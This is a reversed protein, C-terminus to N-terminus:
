RSAVAKQVPALRQRYIYVSELVRQVYNRTEAVPIMEIWDILSIQRARPDGNTQLWEGVRRPGANYAAVALAYSNDYKDLLGKMYLSGLKINRAPDGTLSGEGGYSVDNKRAVEAATAPMLQMLGRAGSPSVAQDDFSSEQRIVAHVLSWEIEVPRMWSLMTPYSQDMLLINKALGKRAIKVANYRHGLEEAFEASLRYEEPTKATDALAMLLESTEDRMGAANLIKAAQAMDRAYFAQQGSFTRPPPTQLPPRDAPDLAGVSLQGYFTTQWRAASQYWQRAIEPHGLAASAKGAWYAARARSVPTTTGNYLAEFHEFAPWPQHLFELALWGALFEAEAFGSGTSQQSKNVLLYASEYQRNGILRRALIHRETWWEDPNPIITMPPMNHLIELAGYDDNNRRRFRLRELLLGPDNQLQSPVDEVLRDVGPSNEILAIRAEALEPYGRGLMRALLRANGYQHEMLLMGFRALNSERSFLEGFRGITMAQEEPTILATKWWDNLKSVALADQKTQLLYMAYRSMGAATRPPYQAFWRAAEADPLNDPMSKEAALIMKGQGPWDPNHRIFYAIREFEVPRDTESYYLWSYIKQALPNHVRNM